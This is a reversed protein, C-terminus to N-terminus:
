RVKEKTPQPEASQGVGIASGAFKEEADKIEDTKAMSVLLYFWLLNLCWFLFCTVVQYGYMWASQFHEAGHRYMHLTCFGVSVVRFVLFALLCGRTAVWFQWTKQMNLKVALWSLHLFPTSLEAMHAWMMWVCGTQTYRVSYWSALGLGHHVLLDPEVKGVKIFLYWLTDHVLYGLMCDCNMTEFGGCAQLTEASVGVWEDSGAGINILLRPQMHVLAVGGIFCANIFAVARNPFANRDMAKSFLNPQLVNVFFDAAYHVGFCAACYALVTQSFM